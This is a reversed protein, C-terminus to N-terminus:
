YDPLSGAGGSQGLGEIARRNVEDLLDLVHSAEDPTFRKDKGALADALARELQEQTLQGAGPTASGGAATGSAAPTGVPTGDGPTSAPAPTGTAEPTSRGPAGTPTPSPSPTLRASVVELNHKADADAPDALLARKYAELADGPRVAGAYHNGLAYEILAALGSRAPLARRTEEIAKQYDGQRDLANGANHYLEGTGPAKVEATRYQALAAPFDARAYDNNGHRNIDAVTSSCIAGALLGAGALPWLRSASRLAARPRRLLPWLLPAV